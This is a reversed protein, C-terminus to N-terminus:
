RNAKKRSLFTLILFGFVVGVILTTELRLESYSEYLSENGSLNSLYFMRLTYFLFSFFLLGILYVYRMTDNGLDRGKKLYFIFLPLLGFLLGFQFKQIYYENTNGIDLSVNDLNDLSLGFFFPWFLQSILFLFISLLTLRLKISM